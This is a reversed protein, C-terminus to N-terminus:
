VIDHLDDGGEGEPVDTGGQPTSQLAEFKTKLDEFDSNLKEFKEKYSPDSEGGEQSGEDDDKPQASFEKGATESLATVASNLGDVAPKLTTEFMVKLAENNSEQVIKLEEPTVEDGTKKSTFLEKISKGLSSKKREQALKFDVEKDYAYLKSGNDKSFNMQKLGSSAPINTLCLADFFYEDSGRFNFGVEISAYKYFGDRNRSIATQNPCLVAFLHVEGELEKETCPELYISDVTGLFTDHYHHDGYIKVEHVNNNFNKVFDELWAREITRGDYKGDPVPGSTAIIVPETRVSM